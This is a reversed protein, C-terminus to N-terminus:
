ESWEKTAEMAMEDVQISLKNIDRLVETLQANSLNLLNKHEDLYQYLPGIPVVTKITM